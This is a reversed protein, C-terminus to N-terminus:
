EEEFTLQFEELMDNDGQIKHAPSASMIASIVKNTEGTNVVDVHMRYISHRGINENIIERFAETDEVTRMHLTVSGKVRSRFVVRHNRFNADTWDKYVDVANVNYSQAVVCNSFDYGEIKIMM